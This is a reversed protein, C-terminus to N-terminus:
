GVLRAAPATPAVVSLTRIASREEEAWSLLRRIAEVKRATDDPTGFRVTTGGTLRLELTGDSM